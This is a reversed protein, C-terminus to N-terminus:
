QSRCREIRLIFHKGSITIRAVFESDVMNWDFYYVDRNGKSAIMSFKRKNMSEMVDMMVHLWTRSEPSVFKSADLILKENPEVHKVENNLIEKIAKFLMLAATENLSVFDSAEM